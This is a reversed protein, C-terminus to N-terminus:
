FPNKWKTHNYEMKNWKELFRTGNKHLLTSELPIVKSLKLLAPSNVKALWIKRVNWQRLCKKPCKKRQWLLRMILYTTTVKEANRTIDIKHWQSDNFFVQFVYFDDWNITIPFQQLFGLFMDFDDLIVM